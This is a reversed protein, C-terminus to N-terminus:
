VPEFPPVIRSIEDYFEQTIVYYDSDDSEQMYFVGDKELIMINQYVASYPTVKVDFDYLLDFDEDNDLTRRVVDGTTVESITFEYDSLELYDDDHWCRWLALPTDRDICLDERLWLCFSHYVYDPCEKNNGYFGGGMGGVWIGPATDIKVCEKDERNLLYFEGQEIYTYGNYYLELKDNDYSVKTPTSSCSCLIVVLVLILFPIIKKM